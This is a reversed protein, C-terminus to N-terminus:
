CTHYVTVLTKRVVSGEQDICTQFLPSALSPDLPVKAEFSRNVNRLTAVLNQIRRCRRWFHKNINRISL